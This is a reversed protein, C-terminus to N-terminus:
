GGGAGHREEHRRLEERIGALLRGALEQPDAATWAPDSVRFELPAHGEVRWTLWVADDSSGLVPRREKSRLQAHIALFLAEAARKRDEPM